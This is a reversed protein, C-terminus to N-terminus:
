EPDIEDRGFGALINLVEEIRPQHAVESRAYNRILGYYLTMTEEINITDMTTVLRRLGQDSNLMQMLRDHLEHVQTGLKRLDKLEIQQHLEPLYSLHEIISHVRDFHETTTQVTKSLERILAAESSGDADDDGSKDQDGARRMLRSNIKRELKTFTGKLKSSDQKLIKLIDSLEVNGSELAPGLIRTALDAAMSIRYVYSPNKHWHILKYAIYVNFVENIVTEQIFALGTIKDVGRRCLGLCVKVPLFVLDLSSLAFATAAERLRAKGEKMREVLKDAAIGPDKNVIEVAVKTLALVANVSEKMAGAPIIAVVKELHSVWVDLSSARYPLGEFVINRFWEEQELDKIVKSIEHHGIEDAADLITVLKHLRLRATRTVENNPNKEGFALNELLFKVAWPSTVITQLLEGKEEKSLEAWPKEHNDPLPEILSRRQENVGLNRGDVTDSKSRNQEELGESLAVLCANGVKSALTKSALAQSSGRELGPFTMCFLFAFLKITKPSKLIWKKFFGMVIGIKQM